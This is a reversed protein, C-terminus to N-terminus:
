AATAAIAPLPIAVSPDVTTGAADIEAIQAQAVEVMMRSLPGLFLYFLSMTMVARVARPNRIMCEGLLRWVHGRMEPRHWSVHWMIRLFRDFELWSDRLQIVFGLNIRNLSLVMRRARAFYTKPEYISSLVAAFDM